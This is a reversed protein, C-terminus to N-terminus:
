YYYSRSHHRNNSQHRGHHHHKELQRLLGDVLYWTGSRHDRRSRQYYDNRHHEGRRHHGGRSHHKGGKVQVYGSSQYGNQLPCNETAMAPKLALTTIFGAGILALALIKRKM